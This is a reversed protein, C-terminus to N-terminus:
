KESTKHLDHPRMKVSDQRFKSLIKVYNQKFKSMIEISNPFFKSVIEHDCYCKLFITSKM